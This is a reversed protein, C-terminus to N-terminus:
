SMGHVEVMVSPLNLNERKPPRSLWTGALLLCMGLLLALAIRRRKQDRLAAREQDRITLSPFSHFELTPDPLNDLPQQGPHDSM